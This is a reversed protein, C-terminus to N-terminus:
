EIECVRRRQKVRRRYHHSQAYPEALGRYQRVDSLYGFRPEPSRQRRQRARCGYDPRQQEEDRSVEERPPGDRQQTYRARHNAYAEDHHHTADAINNARKWTFRM